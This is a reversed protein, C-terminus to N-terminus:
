KAFPRKLLTLLPLCRVEHLWRYSMIHELLMTSMRYLMVKM